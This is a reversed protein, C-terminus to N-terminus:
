IFSASDVLAIVPVPTPPQTSLTIRLRSVTLDGEPKPIRALWCKPLIISTDFLDRM